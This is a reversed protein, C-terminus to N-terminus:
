DAIGCLRWHGGGTLRLEYLGASCTEVRYVGQTILRDWEWEAERWHRYVRKVILMEGGSRLFRVPMGAADTVVQVPERAQHCFPYTWLDIRRAQWLNQATVVCGPGFRQQLHSIAERLRRLRLQPLPNSYLDLLELQIGSGAGLEGAQVSVGVVARDVAPQMRLLLRCAVRFLPGELDIPDTLREQQRLLTQDELTLCVALSRCFVRRRRLRPALRATCRQLTTKLVASDTVGYELAEQVNLTPPPWKAEVRDGDHGQALRSLRTALAGFRRHLEREPLRAVDGFTHLGLKALQKRQAEGLEPWTELSAAQLIQEPRREVVVVTDPAAQRAAHYAVIKSHALGVQMSFRTATVLRPLLDWVRQVIEQGEFQVYCIEPAVPEVLSSEVALAEWVVEAAQAYAARDYPLTVLARCLARAGAAAQGPKVGARLAEESVCLLIENEGVLGLPRGWLAVTRIRETAIAIQPMYFCAIM